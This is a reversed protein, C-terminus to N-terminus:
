IPPPINEKRCLSLERRPLIFSEQCFYSFEKPSKGKGRLFMPMLVRLIFVGQNKDHREKPSSILTPKQNKNRNRPMRNRARKRIKKAAKTEWRM